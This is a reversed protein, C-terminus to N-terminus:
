AYRSMYKDIDFEKGQQALQQAAQDMTPREEEYFIGMYQRETDMALTLAKIRDQPDHDAPLPTVSADWADFTNYFTPCPSLAHIFSFGRHLM